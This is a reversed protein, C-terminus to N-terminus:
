YFEHDCHVKKLSLSCVDTTQFQIIFFVHIGLFRYKETMNIYKVM